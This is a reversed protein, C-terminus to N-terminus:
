NPREPDKVGLPSETDLGARFMVRKWWQRYAEIAMDQTAQDKNGSEWLRALECNLNAETWQVSFLLFGVSGTESCPAMPSGQGLASGQIYVNPIGDITANLAFEQSAASGAALALLLGAVISSENM